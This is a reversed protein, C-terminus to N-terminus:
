NVFLQIHSNFSEHKAEKGPIFYGKDEAEGLTLFLHM